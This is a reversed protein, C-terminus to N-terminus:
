AFSKKNKFFLFCFLLFPLTSLIIKFNLSLLGVFLFLLVIPTLAYVGVLNWKLSFKKFIVAMVLLLQSLLGLLIIPHTLNQLLQNTNSFVKYTAEFVFSSNNPWELYCFQFTLLLGINILRKM